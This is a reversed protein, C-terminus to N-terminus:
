TLFTGKAERAAQEMRTIRWASTPPEKGQPGRKSHTKKMQVMDDQKHHNKRQTRGKNRNEGEQYTLHGKYNIRERDTAIGPTEEKIPDGRSRARGLL